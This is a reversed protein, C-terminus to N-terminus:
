DWDIKVKLHSYKKKLFDTVDDYLETPDFGPRKIVPISNIELNSPVHGPDAKTKKAYNQFMRSLIVIDPDSVGLKKLADYDIHKRIDYEGMEKIVRVIEESIIKKLESKKM